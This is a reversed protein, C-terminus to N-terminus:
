RERYSYKHDYSKCSKKIGNTTLMSTRMELPDFLVVALYVVACGGDSWERRASRRYKSQANSTDNRSVRKQESAFGASRRHEDHFFWSLVCAPAGPAEPAHPAHKWRFLRGGVKALVHILFQILFSWVPLLLNGHNAEPKMRGLHEAALPHSLSHRWQHWQSRGGLPLHLTHCSQWPLITELKVRTTSTSPDSCYYTSSLTKDKELQILSPTVQHRGVGQSELTLIFKRVTEDRLIRCQLRDLSPALTRCM